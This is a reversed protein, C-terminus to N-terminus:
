ATVIRKRVAPRQKPERGAVTIERALERRRFEPNVSMDLATGDLESAGFRLAIQALKGGLMQWYVRVHNVNGLALRAIGIHKMEQMGTTVALSADTIADPDFSVAAFSEVAVNRFTLLEHAQEEISNERHVIYLPTRLGADQAIQRAEARRAASAACRWLRRRVAPVFIEAGDGVLADTGASRLHRAAEAPNALTALEEVSMAAIKSESHEKRVREVAHLTGDLDGALVVIEDAGATTEADSVVTNVAYHTANGHMRERVFNALWGIALIDKSAYLATLDPLELAQGSLVKEHIARLRRDDTQFLHVSSKM